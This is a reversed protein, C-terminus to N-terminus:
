KNMKLRGFIATAMVVLIALEAYTFTTLHKIGANETVIGMLYNVIM